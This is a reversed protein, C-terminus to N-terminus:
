DKSSILDDLDQETAMEQETIVYEGEPFAKKLKELSITDPFVAVVCDWGLHLGTVVWM